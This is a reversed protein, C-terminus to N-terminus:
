AAEVLHDCQFVAPPLQRAEAITKCSDPVAGAKCWSCGSADCTAQDTVSDCNVKQPLHSCHFDSSSLQKAQSITKCASNHTSSDCWSCGSAACTIQDSHSHCAAEHASKESPCGLGRAECCWSRKEDSWLERTLCNYEGRGFALQSSALLLLLM